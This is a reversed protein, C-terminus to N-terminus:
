IESAFAYFMLGLWTMMVGVFVVFASLAYAIIGLNLAATLTTATVWINRATNPIMVPKGDKSTVTKGDTDLQPITQPMEAYTLDNTTHLTHKRIIDAQVMLTYPGAVQINPLASDPPTTIKERTVNNYTYAIGGVGLCIAIMGVVVILVSSLM